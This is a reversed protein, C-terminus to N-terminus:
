YACTIKHVAVTRPAIYPLIWPMGRMADTSLRRRTFGFSWAGLRSRIDCADQRLRLRPSSPQSLVIGM